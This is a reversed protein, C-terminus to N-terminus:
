RDRDRFSGVRGRYGLEDCKTDLDPLPPRGWGDRVQIFDVEVRKSGRSILVVAVGPQSKLWSELASDDPPLSKFEAWVSCGMSAPISKLGAWASAALVTGVIATTALKKHRV